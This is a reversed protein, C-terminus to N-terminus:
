GIPWLTWALLIVLPGAGIDTPSGTFLRAFHQGVVWYIAALAMGAALFSRRHRSAFVGVGIATELLAIVVVLSLGARGAAHSLAENLHFIWRPEENLDTQLDAQLAYVPSFWFPVVRLLAGGIWLVAWADRTAREGVAGAGAVTAPAEPRRRPWAVLALLAYLLAPGPAGVLLTAEGSFLGGFGEGFWWVGLAWVISCALAANVSQPVLLGVGIALQIVIIALNLEVPYPGLLHAVHVISGLIPEPQNEANGLITGFVLNPTFNAPQLQLLADIIWFAALIRQVRRCGGAALGM